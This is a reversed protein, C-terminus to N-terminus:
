FLAGLRVGYTTQGGHPNLLTAFGCKSLLATHM